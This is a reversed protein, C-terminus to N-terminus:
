PCSVLELRSSQDKTRRGFLIQGIEERKTIRDLRSRVHKMWGGGRYALQQDATALCLAAHLDATQDRATINFYCQGRRLQYGPMQGNQGHRATALSHRRTPNDTFQDPVSIWQEDKIWVSVVNTQGLATVEQGFFSGTAFDPQEIG